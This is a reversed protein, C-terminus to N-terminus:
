LYGTNRVRGILSRSPFGASMTLPPCTREHVLIDEVYGESLEPDTLHARLATQTFDKRGHCPSSLGAKTGIRYRAFGPTLAISPPKILITSFKRVSAINYQWRLIAAKSSGEFVRICRGHM